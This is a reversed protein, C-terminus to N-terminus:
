KILKLINNIISTPINDIESKDYISILYVTREYYYVNTIIRAGSSKGKAKPKIKLRIKYCNNGLPTGIEPTIELIDILDSLDDKLSPYKKLLRKFQKKFVNIAVVNYSMSFSEPMARKLRALSLEM